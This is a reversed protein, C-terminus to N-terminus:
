SINSYSWPIEAGYLLSRARYYGARPFSVFGSDGCRRNLLPRITIKSFWNARVVNDTRRFGRTESLGATPSTQLRLVSLVSGNGSLSFTVWGLLAAAPKQPVSIEGGRTRRRAIPGANPVPLGASFVIQAPPISGSRRSFAGGGRAKRM